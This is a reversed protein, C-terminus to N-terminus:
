RKLANSYKKLKTPLLEKDSIETYTLNEKYRNGDVVITKMVDGTVVDITKM